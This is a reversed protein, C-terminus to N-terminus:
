KPGGIAVIFRPEEPAYKVRFMQFHCVPCRALTKTQTHDDIFVVGSWVGSDDAIRKFERGMAGAGYLALIM